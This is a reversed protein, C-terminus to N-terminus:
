VVFTTHPLNSTVHPCSRQGKARDFVVRFCKHGCTADETDSVNLGSHRGWGDQLKSPNVSRGAAVKAETVARLKRTSGVEASVRWNELFSHKRLAPESATVSCDTPQVYLSCALGLGGYLELLSLLCLLASGWIDFYYLTGVRRWSAEASPIELM